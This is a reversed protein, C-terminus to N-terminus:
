ILIKSLNRSTAAALLENKERGTKSIKCGALNLRELKSLYSSQVLHLAGELSIRNKYLDLHILNEANPSDGFNGIVEDTLGCRSLHLERLNKMWPSEVLVNEQPLQNCSFSFSTLQYPLKTLFLAAYNPHLRYPITSVRLGQLQNLYPPNCLLEIDEPQIITGSIDLSHLNSFVSDSLVVQLLPDESFSIDLYKIQQLFERAPQNSLWYQLERVSCPNLCLSNLVPAHEALSPANSWQDGALRLHTLFGRSFRADRLSPVYTGLWQNLIQQELLHVHQNLENAQEKTVGHGLLQQAQIIQLHILEGRIDQQEQLWDAYVLRPEDNDPQDVIAAIFDRERSTLPRAV